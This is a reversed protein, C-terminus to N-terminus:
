APQSGHPGVSGDLRPLTALLERTYPHAPSRFLEMVGAEEVVQGLRMVVVRDCTEAVM